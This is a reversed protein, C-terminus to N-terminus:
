TAPDVGTKLIASLLNLALALAVRTRQNEDLAGDLTVDILLM